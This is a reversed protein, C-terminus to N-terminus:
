LINAKVYKSEELYIVLVSQFSLSMYLPMYLVYIGMLLFFSM